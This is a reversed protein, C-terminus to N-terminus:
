GDRGLRSARAADFEAQTQEQLDLEIAFQALADERETRGPEDRWATWQASTWSVRKAAEGLERTGLELRIPSGPARSTWEGGPRQILEVGAANLLVPRGDPLDSRHTWGEPVVLAASRERRVHPWPAFHDGRAQAPAKADPVGSAVAASGDDNDDIM